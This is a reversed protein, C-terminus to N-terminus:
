QSQPKKEDRPKVISGDASRWLKKGGRGFAAHFTTLDVKDARKPKESRAAVPDSDREQNKAEGSM